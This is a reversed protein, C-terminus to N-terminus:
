SLDDLLRQLDEYQYPPRRRIALVTVLAADDDVVYIIRWGEVRIRRAEAGPELVVALDSLDLPRSNAPRPQQELERLLRVVRQRMNGPLNRVENRAASTVNVRYSAM